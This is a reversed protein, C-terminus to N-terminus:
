IEKSKSKIIIHPLALMVYLVRDIFNIDRPSVPSAKFTVKYEDTWIIRNGSIPHFVSQPVTSPNLPEASLYTRLRDFDSDNTLDQVKDYNIIIVNRKGSAKLALYTLAAFSQGGFVFFPLIFSSFPYIFFHPIKRKRRLFNFSNHNKM